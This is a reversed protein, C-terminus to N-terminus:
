FIIGDDDPDSDPFFGVPVLEEEMQQIKREFLSMRLNTDMLDSFYVETTAWAFSVLTMVMDDHAGDAAKYQGSKIEFTSLESIYTHDYFKLKDNMILSKLNSCGTSKVPKSMTLGMSNSSEISLIQGSRGKTKTSLMNEYELDFSLINSVQLGIDNLEVLVFAENYRKAMELVLSPLLMTDLTNNHYTAVVEYPLQTIDIVSMAHYDLGKGRCVDVSIFYTHDKVPSRWFKMDGLEERPKRCVLTKLKSAPVLSTPTGLFQGDYEQEWRDEGINRITEEMFKKDRGPVDDWRIEIPKFSSQKEEAETYLKHFHNMGNPTSIIVMKPKKEFPVSPDDKSVVPYISTFFPDAINQDVFAFEDLLVFNFTKGRMTKKTTASSEVRSGNELQVKHQDWKKVGQQMWYPLNEYATKIRDMIELATEDKDAAIGVKFRKRFVICWVIYTAMSTTNHTPVLSKGVLFLSEENDVKICKVPVSDAEEIKMMFHYKSRSVLKSFDCNGSKRKLFFPDFSPRFAISYYVTGNVLKSRIKNKVGLTNLLTVVNDTLFKSKQYFECSGQGNKHNGDSDLLGALLEKRVKETNFIYIDPIHKNNYVGLDKIARTLGEIQFTVVGPRYEKAALITYGRKEIETKYFQFDDVHATIRGAASHGDGLWLGFIYPDIPIDQADFELPNTVVSIRFNSSKYQWGGNIKLDVLEQTTLTKEHKWSRHSVTWLHEADAVITEGNDFTVNYCKHNYMTDTSFLVKTRKGNRDYITDGEKIDGFKKWGDVTLIDENINLAKGCQRPFKCITFRSNHMLKLLKKQYDYLQIVKLSGSNDDIMIYNQIFYEYSAACRRIEDVMQQTYEIKENPGRLYDIGNYM